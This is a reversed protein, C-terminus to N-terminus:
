VCFCVCMCVRVCTCVRVCICECVSVYAYQLCEGVEYLAMPCSSTKPLLAADGRLIYSQIAEDDLHGFPLAGVSAIEWVTVAFAWVETGESYRRQTLVEPASWRLPTDEIEEAVHEPGRVARGFDGIKLALTGRDADFACCMINRLSLDRHLLGSRVVAAMGDCIQHAARQSIRPPLAPCPGGTGTTYQELVTDFGLLPAYECIICHAGRPDIALGFFKIVHVNPQLRAM